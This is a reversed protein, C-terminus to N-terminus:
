RDFLIGRGRLLRMGSDLHARASEKDGLRMQEYTRQAVDHPVAKLTRNSSM